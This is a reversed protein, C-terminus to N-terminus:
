LNIHLKRKVIVSLVVAFVIYSCATAIAAGNLGYNAIFILNLLFNSAAAITNVLSEMAPYGTQNLLNGWVIYKGTVAISICMIILPLIVQLYEQKNFFICVIYYCLAIIIVLPIAIMRIVSAVKQKLQVFEESVLGNEYYRAILPNLNRRVVVYLQYFGEVFVAAFSYYGILNDNKLILGLCVIDIKSNLELILNGPMSHVGFRIHKRMWHINPIVLKREVKLVYTSMSLCLIFEACFFSLALYQGQVSIFALILLSGTIALNRFAQFFAYAKMMARGNFYSLIIKNLSFLPLAPIIVWINRLAIINSKYFITIYIIVLAISVGISIIVGMVIASSLINLYEKNKEAESSVSKLVSMHIGLVSIQSLVIYYAYISNFIGLTAADYFLMIIVSFLLGGVALVFISIYNWALDYIFKKNNNIKYRM